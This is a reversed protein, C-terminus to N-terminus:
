MLDRRYHLGSSCMSHHREFRGNMLQNILTQNGFFVSHAEQATASGALFTVVSSGNGPASISAPSFNATAGAPLGSASLAIASSSSGSITTTITLTSASSQPMSIANPSAAITFDGIPVGSTSANLAFDDVIFSTQLSSNETGVLYVQITQGKYATLDFTKQAYGTNKNLNSYTALTALVTGASNRVQVNLTDYVTTPPPMALVALPLWAVIPPPMLLTTVLVLPVM